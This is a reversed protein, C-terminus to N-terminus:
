IALVTLSPARDKRVQRDLEHNARYRCRRAALNKGDLQTAIDLPSAAPILLKRVTALTKIASLHRRHAADQQGLLMKLRAESAGASQAVLADFYATEMWTMAVRAALLRDLPSPAEGGVEDKMAQVKRKLSEALLLNTGAALMGLAAEAHLALDGYQRWLAVDADLARHLEPVVSHDGKEARELLRASEAREKQSALEERDKEHDTETKTHAEM